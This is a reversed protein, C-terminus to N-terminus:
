DSVDDLDEWEEDIEEWNLEAKIVKRAEFLLEMRYIDNTPEQPIQPLKLIMRNYNMLSPKRCRPHVWLGSPGDLTWGDQVRWTGTEHCTCYPKTNLGIMKTTTM